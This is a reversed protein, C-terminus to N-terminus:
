AGSGTNAYEWFRNFNQNNLDRSNAANGAYARGSTATTWPASNPVIGNITTERIVLQGNPSTGPVYANASKVGADWSRGLYVKKSSSWASDGTITSKIVLYGYMQHPDTDPAFIVSEDNKRDAKSYFTCSEFIATGGGFVYDIDGEIYTNTYHAIQTDTGGSGACLTDQHGLLNVNHVQIRDSNTQLAVAQQDGKNKASNQIQLNVIQVNPALVWFVTSCSTGITGSSSACGNYISYAPDGPKFFADNPNVLNKYASPTTQAPMNLTIVTNDPRSGAGYITLPVNTNPIYVVQQYTGTNIKIYKRNSGGANIADNVAAQITSYGGGGVTYDTHNTSISPPSWGQLYKEKTYYNAESATLIPRSSTGPPNQNACALAVLVPLLVIIKM